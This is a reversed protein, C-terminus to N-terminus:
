GRLKARLGGVGDGGDIRIRPIEFRDDGAEDLGEDVTVASSYGAKRVADVAADDYAGAPYCFSDVPVGFKRALTRRSGSVESQLATPDLTTLDPHTVTHSGLEWGNGIMEEVMADTMEGQTLSDVKLYLVGPWGHEALSSAAHEYQGRYGDDFTLVIPMDPLEARGERALELAEMTIAEYGKDELLDLQRDFQGPSVFLEPYATDPSAVDVDHYMLVPVAGRYPETDVRVVEGPTAASADAAIDGPDAGADHDGGLGGVLGAVARVALFALLLVVAAVLVGVIRRRRYVRRM